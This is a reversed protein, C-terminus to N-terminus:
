DQNSYQLYSCGRNIKAADIPFDVVTTCRIGNMKDGGADSLCGDSKKMVVEPNDVDCVDNTYVQGPKYALLRISDYYWQDDGDTKVRVKEVVEPESGAFLFCRYKHRDDWDGRHSPSEGWVHRTMEFDGAGSIRPDGNLCRYGEHDSCTSLWQTATEDLEGAITWVAEIDNDTHADEESSGGDEDVWYGSDFGRQQGEKTSVFLCFATDDRGFRITGTSDGSSGLWRNLTGRYLVEWVEEEQTAGVPCEDTPMGQQWLEVLDDRVCRTFVQVLEISINRIGLNDDSLNQLTFYAADDRDRIALMEQRDLITTYDTNRSSMQMRFDVDRCHQYGSDTCVHLRYSGQSPSEDTGGTRITLRLATTRPAPLKETEIPRLTGVADIIRRHRDFGDATHMVGGLTVREMSDDQEEEADAGSLDFGGHYSSGGFSFGGYTGGITVTDDGAVDGSDGTDIPPQVVDDGESGDIPAVPPDMIDIDIPLKEDIDGGGSGDGSGLGARIQGGEMGGECGATVLAILLMAAVGFVTGRWVRKQKGRQKM